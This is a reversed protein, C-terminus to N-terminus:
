KHRKKYEKLKRKCEKREIDCERIFKNVEAVSIKGERFQEMAETLRNISHVNQNTIDRLEADEMDSSDVEKVRCREKKTEM